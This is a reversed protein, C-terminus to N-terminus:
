FRLSSRHVYRVRMVIDPYSNTSKTKNGKVKVLLIESPFTLGVVTLMQPEENSRTEGESIYLAFFVRM